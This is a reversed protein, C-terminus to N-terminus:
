ILLLSLLPLYEHRITGKETCNGPFSCIFRFRTHISSEPSLRTQAKFIQWTMLLLQCIECRSTLYLMRAEKELKLFANIRRAGNLSLVVLARFTIEMSVLRIVNPQDFEM